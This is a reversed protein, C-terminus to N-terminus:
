DILYFYIQLCFTHEFLLIFFVFCQTMVILLFYNYWHPFLFIPFIILNEKGSVGTSDFTVRKRNVVCPFQFFLPETHNRYAFREQFCEFYKIMEASVFIYHAVQRM